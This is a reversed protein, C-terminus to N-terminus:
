CTQGYVPIKVNKYDYSYEPSVKDLYPTSEHVFYWSAYNDFGLLHEGPSQPTWRGLPFKVASYAIRQRPYNGMDSFAAIRPVDFGDEAFAM